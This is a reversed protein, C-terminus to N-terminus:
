DSGSDGLPEWLSGSAGLPEWYGFYITSISFDHHQGNLFGVLPENLLYCITPLIKVMRYNM